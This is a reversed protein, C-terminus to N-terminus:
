GFQSFSLMVVKGRFDTMNWLHNYQDAVPTTWSGACRNLVNGLEIGGTGCMDTLAHGPRPNGASDTGTTGQYNAGRGSVLFYKNGDPMSAIDYNMLADNADTGDTEALVTHNYAFPAALDGAWVTYTNAKAGAPCHSQPNPLNPLTQSTCGWVDRKLDEFALRLGSGNKEVGLPIYPTGSVERPGTGDYLIRYLGAEGTTPDASAVYIWGDAGQALGKVAVPCEPDTSPDYFANTSGLTDFNAGTLVDRVIKGSGGGIFLNNEFDPFKGGRYAVASSAELQPSISQLPARFSGASCATVNWGYNEGALIVNAEDCAADGDYNEASYITGTGANMALGGPNRFGRAYILNYPYPQALHPNDSPVTGDPNVRLIKGCLHGMDQGRSDVDMVGVGVYLKGDDGFMLAGGNDAGNPAADMNEVIVLPDTGVNGSATYRVVRNVKPSAQTYYLYVWGNRAFDPHLAIGLLGEESGQAVGLQVFPEPLLKGNQLVRVKGSLRELVFVRGDPALAVGQALAIGRAVPEIRYQGPLVDAPAPTIPAGFLLLVIGVVFRTKM